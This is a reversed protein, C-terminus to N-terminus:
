SIHLYISSSISPDGGYPILRVRHSPSPCTLRKLRATLCCSSGNGHLLTGSPKDYHRHWRRVSSASPCLCLPSWRISSLLCIIPLLLTLILLVSYSRTLSYIGNFDFRPGRPLPLFHQSSELPHHQDHGKYQWAQQLGIQWTMGLKEHSGQPSCLTLQM